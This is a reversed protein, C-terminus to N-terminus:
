PHRLPQPGVWRMGHLDSVARDSYRWLMFVYAVDAYFYITFDIYVSPDGHIWRGEANPGHGKVAGRPRAPRMNPLARPM